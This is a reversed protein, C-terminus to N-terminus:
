DKHQNIHSFLSNWPLTILDTRAQIKLVLMGGEFELINARKIWNERDALFGTQFRKREM